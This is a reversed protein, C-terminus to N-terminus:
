TFVHMLCINGMHRVELNLNPTEAFANNQRKYSKLFIEKKKGDYLASGSELWTYCKPTNM